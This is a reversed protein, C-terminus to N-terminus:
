PPASRKFNDIFTFRLVKASGVRKILRKKKLVEINKDIATTSIGIKESLIKKSVNPNATVLKLIKKQSEALGDVLREVLGGVLEGNIERDTEKLLLALETSLLFGTEKL